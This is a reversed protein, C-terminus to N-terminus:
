RWRSFDIGHLCSNAFSVTMEDWRQVWTRMEEQLGEKDDPRCLAETALREMVGKWRALLDVEKTKAPSAERPALANWNVPAMNAFRHNVPLHTPSLQPDFFKLVQNM